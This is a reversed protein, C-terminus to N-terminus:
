DANRKELKQAVVQDLLRDIHPSFMDFLGSQGMVSEVRMMETLLACLYGNRSVGANEAAKDLWQAVAEPTRVSINRYGQGTTARQRGKKTGGTKKKTTAKKKTTKKNM